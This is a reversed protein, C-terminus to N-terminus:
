RMTEDVRIRQDADTALGAGAALGPVAFGTTWVTTDTPIVEGDGTVVADGRVEAVTATVVTIGLRAFVKRVHARAGPALWDGLESDTILRVRLRPHTEALETAVELGTMGGGVVTLDGDAGIAAIRERLRVAQTHTSVGHAHEDAGPVPNVGAQSGLSYVLTDYELERIGDAAAIELRRHRTDLTTVWGVRLRIGTGRFLRPLPIVPLDQGAAVQHLRVREVFDPRANVVTIDVEDRRLHRSLRTATLVGSYGGGLVVIRHKTTTNNM